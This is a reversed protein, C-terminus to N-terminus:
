EAVTMGDLFMVTHAPAGNGAPAREEALLVFLFDGRDACSEHSFEALLPSMHHSVYATVQEDIGIEQDDVGDVDGHADKPRDRGIEHIHRRPLKSWSFFFGFQQRAPQVIKKREM